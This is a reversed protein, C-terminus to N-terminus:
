FPAEARVESKFFSLKESFGSGPPTYTVSYGFIFMGDRIGEAELWNLADIEQGTSKLKIVTGRNVYFGERSQSKMPTAVDPSQSLWEVIKEQHSNAKTNM